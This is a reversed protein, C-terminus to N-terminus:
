SSTLLSKNTTIEVNNQYLNRCLHLTAWTILYEWSGNNRKVYIYWWTVDDSRIDRVRERWGERDNMTELLDGLSCESDACLLEICTRSTLGAMARGYSPTWLFVDSILEDRSRWCHVVHRTRRFQITKTIPSLHGYLAEKSPHQKRLKNLMAWLKGRYNSDLRKELRKILTWTSCGYLLISVVSAQFFQTKM